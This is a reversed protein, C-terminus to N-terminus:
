NPPAIKDLPFDVVVAKRRDSMPVVSYGADPKYAYEAVLEKARPGLGEFQAPSLFKPQSYLMDVTNHKSWDALIAAEADTKWIRDALKVVVKWGPLEEQRIAIRTYAENELVKALMRLVKPGVELLALLAPTTLEKIGEAGLAAISTGTSLMPACFKKVPCFRCHEGMKFIGERTALMRPRLEEEAWKRLAGASTVWSRIPGDSHEARPQAITLKVLNNDKLRPRNEPWSPGDIAMFAYGMCQRNKEVEVIVGQGHKYDVCELAISPEPYFLLADAKGYADDHFAPHSIPTEVMMGAKGVRERVYDVAAQVALMMDATVDPCIVPDVLVADVGSTLCEALVAHAQVGDKRYDPDDATLEGAGGMTKILNVSASCEFYREAQSM